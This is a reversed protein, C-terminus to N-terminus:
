KCAAICMCDMDLRSWEISVCRYYCLGWLAFITQMFGLQMRWSSSEKKGAALGHRNPRIGMMIAISLLFNNRVGVELALLAYSTSM